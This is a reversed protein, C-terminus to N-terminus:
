ANREQIVLSNRRGPGESSTPKKYGRRKCAEIWEREKADRDIRFAFLLLYLSNDTHTKIIFM